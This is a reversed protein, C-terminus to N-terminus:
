KRKECHTGGTLESLTRLCENLTRDVCWVETPSVACYAQEGIVVPPKIGNEKYEVAKAVSYGCFILIFVLILLVYTLNVLAKALITNKM